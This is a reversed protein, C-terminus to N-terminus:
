SAFGLKQRVKQLVERAVLRAKAEGVQLKEELEQPNNIYFDFKEREKEFKTWILEFLEKKAHGYGYNGGLYNQRMQAIEESTALLQYLQFVHCIDPNKPAELPTSDTVISMVQKKLKKKPLFIDIYNNYSKSMKQGDTGPVTM